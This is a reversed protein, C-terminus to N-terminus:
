PHLASTGRHGRRHRWNAIHAGALLLSGSVTVATEIAERSSLVVGLAMLVLGITGIILPVAARHRRWGGVLALASTPVALLLIVAHFGEGPDLRGALAPLAAFLLPLALCHVMCAASACVSIGDLINGATGDTGPLRAIVRQTNDMWMHHYM